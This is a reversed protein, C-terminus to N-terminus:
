QSLPAYALAVHQSSRRPSPDGGLRRWPLGGDVPGLTGTGAGGDRTANMTKM